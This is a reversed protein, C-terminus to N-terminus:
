PPHLLPLPSVPGQAPPVLSTLALHGGGTEHRVVQVRGATPLHPSDAAAQPDHPAGPGTSRIETGTAEASVQTSSGGVRGGLHVQQAEVM